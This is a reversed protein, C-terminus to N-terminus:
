LGRIDKIIFALYLLNCAMIFAGLIVVSHEYGVIAILLGMLLPGAVNGAREWFRYIGMGAGAGLKKVIRTESIVSAQSSVSFSQAIGLMIVMVLIPVFGSYFAFSLMAGATILGGVLIFYRRLYEQPFLYSILPGAFVLCIAYCMIVRGINSQLVEINNLYIPVFFFLFGVLVLKAPIAQLWLVAAFERDRFVQFLQSPKFPLGIPRTKEPVAPRFPGRFVLVAFVLALLSFLASFYFVSAYGIREALMAGIVTGCIDGSFFAALFGAMGMSRTKLSTNDIVFRQCCMFVMGLGVAALCRFLILWIIDQALATMLHGAANLLLGMILPRFWGRFDTMSGALPMAIAMTLMFIAIPLGMVMERSLGPIPEYMSDVYMPFFSISFGDAMIFLFILPRILSYPVFSSSADEPSYASPKNIDRGELKLALEEWYSRIKSLCNKLGQGTGAPQVPKGSSEQKDVERMLGAIRTSQEGPSRSLGRSLDPLFGQLGVKFSQAYRRIIANYYDALVSIESLASYSQRDVPLLRRYNRAIDQRLINLPHSIYYIVFFTLFEFTLLLSTFMVTLMDWMIQRTQAHIVSGSIHINIYGQLQNNVELPLAVDTDEPSLGKEALKSAYPKHVFDSERSGPEFSDATQHDAYFLTFGRPDTIEMFEVEPLNELVQALSNELRSIRELDIGMELVYELDQGLNQGASVSKERVTNVHSSQFSNINFYSYAAQGLIIVAVAVIFVNIKLNLHLHLDKKM